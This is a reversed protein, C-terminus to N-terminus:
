RNFPRESIWRFGRNMLLYSEDEIKKLVLKVPKGEIQAELTLREPGAWRYTFEIAPKKKDGPELVLKRKPVEVKATYTVAKRDMTRVTASPRNFSFVISNWRETDGQLPPLTRGELEHQEVLYYGALFHTPVEHKTKWREFSDASAMYTVFCVAAVKLGAAAWRQWPKPWELNIPHPAVPRNLVFFNLLRRCDPAALWVGLVCLHIAYLKVPVDYFLNLLAVNLMVAAVMLAGLLTTRRFFLLLGPVVEALGMFLNYGSSFGMSTWLLGMPSSEGYPQALRGPSPLPFQLHLVKAMGYSIMAAALTYRVFVRAFELVAADRKRGRDFVAWVAGVAVSVIAFLLAQLYNFLKDGSGTSVSPIESTIAFVTKGFWPVVVAWLKAWADLLWKPALDLNGLASYLSYLAVYLTPARLGFRGIWSTRAVTPANPAWRTSSIPRTLTDM